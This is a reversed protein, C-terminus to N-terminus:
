PVVCLADAGEIPTGGFTIGSLIATIEGTSLDYDIVQIVRDLDGDSDVDQLSGANGSKGNLRVAGGLLTVTLPDVEAANFTATTLIAVPIVGNGGTNVCNPDSGPKIDITVNIIVPGRDHVFIDFVGNTDGEVLNSALSEFAVFRGSASIASRNSNSDAQGGASDVSVRTTAVAGPEDFIGDGDADRDHVFVDAKFNTDEAVLKSSSDFTVFRGDANIAPNFSDITGQVGASDVSARTTTGTQRDHVFIDFRGNTDSAVLNSALSQFAVHDGDGSITSPRFLGSINNGQNGASDVSVRTTAGTLRDHVFVDVFGNTDGTVLNDADSTFAVVRGDDSIDALGSFSGNTQGGVSDVSVRTTAVAGPEDFIGDGDTDRDHVFVDDGSNTDDAVLDSAASGFAVFRGDASIAPGASDDNGQNGASDVSVMVTAIAGVEDFIGDKDTDRDHVFVDARNNTDSAVLNSALSGFAVFRGDASIANGFSRDNGQGGASDVSVRTTAGTLRDHLFIDRVDNTDDPVLNSADSQVAVHRGDASIAPGASLGNGQTSDSAVSVRTTAGPDASAPALSLSLALALVGVAIGVLSGRLMVM